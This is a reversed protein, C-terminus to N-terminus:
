SDAAVKLLSDRAAAGLYRLPLFLTRLSSSGGTSQRRVGPHKLNMKLPALELRISEPAISLEEAVLIALGTTVGQGMEAKPLYLYVQGENDIRLLPSLVGISSAAEGEHAQATGIGLYFGSIAGGLLSLAKRRSLNLVEM